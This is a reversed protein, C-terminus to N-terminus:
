HKYTDTRPCRLTETCIPSSTPPRAPWDQTLRQTHTTYGGCVGRQTRHSDGHTNRPMVIGPQGGQTGMVTNRFNIGGAWARHSDWTPHTQTAPSDARMCVCVGSLGVLRPGAQARTRATVAM